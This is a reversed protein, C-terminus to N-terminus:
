KRAVRAHVQKMFERYDTATIRGSERDKIKARAEDAVASLRVKAEETTVPGTGGALIQWGCWVRQWDILAAVVTAPMDKHGWPSMGMEANRSPDIPVASAVTALLVETADALNHLWFDEVNTGRASIAKVRGCLQAIANSDQPDDRIASLAGRSGLAEMSRLFSDIAQQEIDTV